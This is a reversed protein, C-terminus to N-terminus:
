SNCLICLLQTNIGEARDLPERFYFLIYHSYKLTGSLIQQFCGMICTCSRSQELRRIGQTKAQAIGQIQFTKLTREAVLVTRDLSLEYINGSLFHSRGDGQVKHFSLFYTITLCFISSCFPMSKLTLNDIILKTMYIRHSRSCLGIQAVAEQPTHYM